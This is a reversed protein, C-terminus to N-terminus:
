IWVELAIQGLIKKVLIFYRKAPLTISDLSLESLERVVLVENWAPIEEWYKCSTFLIRYIQEYHTLEDEKLAEVFKADLNSDLEYVQRFTIATAENMGQDVWNDLFNEMHVGLEYESVLSKIERSM